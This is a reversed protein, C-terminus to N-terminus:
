EGYGDIRSPYPFLNLARARTIAERRSSVDLKRYLTKLHAKVTNVSVYMEGAIEANSLMTPLHELVTLERDTLPEILGGSFPRQNHHPLGSLFERALAQSVPIVRLLHALLRPLGQGDFLTFPRRIEDDIALGIARQAAANARHDERKNSALVAAILWAEVEAARDVALDHLPAVLQAAKDPDGNLLLARALCAREQDAIPSHEDSLTLRRVAGAADGRALDLEAEALKQWRTLFAPPEWAIPARVVERLLEGAHALRGRATLVRVQTIQMATSPLRDTHLPQAALGLHLLRDAEELDNWQFNVLALALYAASVQELTQWGRVNALDVAAIAHEHAMRLRGASAAILGLHGLANMRAVEPGQPVSGLAERLSREAEKDAGSWLLGTGYNNLAVITYDRAAPLTAAEGRLLDLAKASQLIVADVDGVIRGQLTSLLHLLVQAAPQVDPDIQPLAAWARALHVDLGEFQAKVVCRAARCLHVEAVGDDVDAEPLQDLIRGIVDRETSLLRPATRTALLRGLLRWDGASVAHRMADIPHDHIAFWNSARRHMEAVVNPKLMLLQHRLMDRMMPHYRYWHGSVGLAVVFANARELQDLRQEGNDEGTIANALDGTLKDTICTHLLFERLDHPQAALVETTLYDAVTRNDTTFADLRSGSSDLRLSLAAMRLGAAWGDTWDLLRTLSVSVNLGQQAFLTTAEDANFALDAARIEVLDGSLRLRHLTLMPDIRTLLVLRLQPLPHRLLLDLGHLVGPDRIEHFDDLVLAIPHPLRSLGYRIRRVAEDDFTPGPILEALPNDSSVAGTRRLAALVCSWFVPPASDGEDLSVWATHSAATAWAAAALTKGWGPGASVITLPKTVGADFMASVRPRVVFGSPVRPPSLKVELLPLGSRANGDQTEDDAGPLERASTGWPAHDV